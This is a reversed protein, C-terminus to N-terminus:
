TVTTRKRRLLRESWETVIALAVVAPLASLAIAGGVGLATGALMGVVLPTVLYAICNGATMAGLGAGRRGPIRAADDYLKPMFTAVGIGVLAFGVISARPDPVLAAVAYGAATLALSFRHLVTRGLRLQLWDGGFRMASMGATYAVFALSGLEATAGFDDTLRFSAWDGGAVEAVNAFMSALVVLVTPAFRVRWPMDASEPAAADTPGDEDSPLLHRTVVVLAVAAIAAVLALHAFTSLGVANAAVAGLGGGLAGLSWLGHLRNMIPARRRASLLSGQLNMSIDVLVDFLVYVFMALLWLAPGRAAGILPLSLVTGVAGVALVRRTTTADIVRGAVLSGLLGFAAVVTVLAGFEEISVGIRDRIQPARAIFSSTMAGNIFFQGAIAMVALRDSLASPLHNM